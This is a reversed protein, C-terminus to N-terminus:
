WWISLAATVIGLVISAAMFRRAAPILDDDQEARDLYLRVRGLPGVYIEIKHQEGEGVAFRRWGWWKYTRLVEREDVYYSERGTLLLLVTVEHRESEGVPFSRRLLAWPRPRTTNAFRPSAYPNELPENTGNM